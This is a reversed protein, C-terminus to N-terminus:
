GELPIQIGFEGLTVHAQAGTLAGLASGADPATTNLPVGDTCYLM